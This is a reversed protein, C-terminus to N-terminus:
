PTHPALWMCALGDILKNPARRATRIASVSPQDGTPRVPGYCAVHKRLRAAGRAEEQGRDGGLLMCYFPACPILALILVPGHAGGEVLLPPSGLEWKRGWKVIRLPRKTVNNKGRLPCSFLGILLPQYPKIGRSSQEGCRITVTGELPFSLPLHSLNDVPAGPRLAQHCLGTARGPRCVQGPVSWPHDTVGAYLGTSLIGRCTV